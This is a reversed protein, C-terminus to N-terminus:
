ALLGGPRKQKIIESQVAAGIAAGLAKANPQNGEASSGKADVNVVVNVDGGSGGGFRGNPEIRGNSRPVFLEPGREGIIYPSGSKVPGGNARPTIPVINNAGIGSYQEIADLNLGSSQQPFGAFARAVGIAVYTAIIQGAVQLLLNAINKLFDAFVEQASKTGSVLEDLGVTMAQGFAQGIGEAVTVAVQELDNLSKTSETIFRNLPQQAEILSQKLREIQQVQAETFNGSNRLTQIEQELRLQEAQQRTTANQIDLQNQLSSQLALFNETRQKVTSAYQREINLRALQNKVSATTLNDQKIQENTISNNITDIEAAYKIQQLLLKNQRDQELTIRSFPTANIVPQNAFIDEALERSIQANKIKRLLAEQKEIERSQEKLDQARLQEVKRTANLTVLAEEAERARLAAAEATKKQTRQAETNEPLANIRKLADEYNKQIDIFAKGADIRVNIIKAELDKFSSRSLELGLASEAAEAAELLELKLEVAKTVSRDLSGAYKSIAEGLKNAAGEGAVLNIAWRGLIEVVRGGASLLTNVLAIAKGLLSLILGVAAAIPAGIIGLLASGSNILEQFGTNLVGVAVSVDEAASLTLGTQRTVEQQVLNQAEVLRGQEKLLRVQLELDDTVRGLSNELTAVDINLIAKGFEAAKKIAEDIQQGIASFLIQGGFGGGSDTLAGLAGGAVSGPGGGFLLPFGIGLRLSEARQLRKIAKNQIAAIKETTRLAREDLFQQQAKERSIQKENKLRANNIAQRRREVEIDRESQPQLGAAKRAADNTISELRRSYTSAQETAIAWAAALNKVEGTQRKLGGSRLAVNNLATAFVEAKEATTAVTNGLLRVRKAADDSSNAVDRIADQFVKLQKAAADGGAGGGVFGTSTRFINIPEKNLKDVLKQVQEIKSIVKNFSPDLRGLTRVVIDANAQAM